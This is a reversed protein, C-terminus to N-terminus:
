NMILITESVRVFSSLSPMVVESNPNSQLSNVLAGVSISSLTHSTKNLSPTQYHFSHAGDNPNSYSGSLWGVNLSSSGNSRSRNGLTHTQSSRTSHILSSLTSHNNNHASKFPYHISFSHNFRTLVELTGSQSNLTVMSAPYNNKSISVVLGQTLNASSSPSHMDKPPSNITTQVALIDINITTNFKLTVNEAKDTKITTSTIAIGSKSSHVTSNM